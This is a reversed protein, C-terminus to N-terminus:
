DYFNLGVIHLHGRTCAGVFGPTPDSDNPDILQAGPEEKLIKKVMELHGFECALM